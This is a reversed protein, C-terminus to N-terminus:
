NANGDSRAVNTVCHDISDYHQNGYLHYLILTFTTSALWYQYWLHISCIVQLYRIGLNFESREPSVEHFGVYNRSECDFNCMSSLLKFYFLLVLIYRLM